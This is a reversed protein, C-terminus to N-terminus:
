ILRYAVRRKPRDFIQDVRVGLDDDPVGEVRYDGVLRHLLDPMRQWRQDGDAGREPEFGNDVRLEPRM